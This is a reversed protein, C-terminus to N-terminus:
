NVEEVSWGDNSARRTSPPAARRRKAQGMYDNTANQVAQTFTTGNPSAKSTSGYRAVWKSELYARMKTLESEQRQANIISHNVARSNTASIDSKGYMAADKDTQPGKQEKQRLAIRENRAADIRQYDDKSQSPLVARIPAGVFSGVGDWFGGGQNPMVMDYITGKLPGGDFRDISPTVRDYLRLSSDAAAARENAEMLSKRDNAETKAGTIPSAGQQARLAALEAVHEPKLKGLAEGRELLLQRESKRAM